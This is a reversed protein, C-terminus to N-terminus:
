SPFQYCLAPLLWQLVNFPSHLRVQSVGSIIFDIWQSPIHESGSGNVTADSSTLHVLPKAYSPRYARLLFRTQLSNLRDLDVATNYLGEVTKTNAQM